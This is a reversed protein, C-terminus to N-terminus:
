RCVFTRGTGPGRHIANDLLGGTVFIAMQFVYRVSLEGAICNSLGIPAQSFAGLRSAVRACLIVRTTQALCEANQPRSNQKVLCTMTSEESELQLRGARRPLIPKLHFLLTTTLVVLSDDLSLNTPNERVNTCSSAAPTWPAQPEASCVDEVLRSM